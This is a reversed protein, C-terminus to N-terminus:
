NNSEPGADEFKRNEAKIRVKLKSKIWIIKIRIDKQLKIRINM